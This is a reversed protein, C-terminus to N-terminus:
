DLEVVIYEDDIPDHFVQFYNPWGPIKRLFAFVSRKSGRKRVRGFQEPVEDDGLEEIGDDRKKNIEPFAQPLEVQMYDALREVLDRFQQPTVTGFPDFTNNGGGVAVQFGSGPIELIRDTFELSSRSGFIEDDDPSPLPPLNFLDM